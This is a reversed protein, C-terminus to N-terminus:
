LKGGHASSFLAGPARMARAHKETSSLEGVPGGNRTLPWREDVVCWGVLLRAAEPPPGHGHVM